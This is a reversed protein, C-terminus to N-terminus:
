EDDGEPRPLAILQQETIDFPNYVSQHCNCYIRDDGNGYNGSEGLRKYGPVCCFHTCKNLYAVCGQPCTEAVWEDDQAMEEIRTSRIVIIPITNEAAVNQSRWTATAPKGLGDEGIGNGWDEYGELDEIHIRDGGSVEEMWPYDGSASTDYRFYADQGDADPAIGPFTQVGCYQYWETSYETGAIETRSVQYETSGQEVTEPEPWIGQLYGEDDIEIPIQPLGRPAPGMERVAGRYDMRGGGGGSPTTAMTVSAAGVTLLGSLVGGGVVGKVFRRRDSEVPYNDDDAM